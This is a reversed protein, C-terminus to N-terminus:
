LSGDARRCLVIPVIGKGGPGPSLRLGTIRGARDFCPGSACGDVICVIGDKSAARGEQVMMAVDATYHPTNNASLNISLHEHFLIPGGGLTEPAVDKLLTRIVAGSIAGQTSATGHIVLGADYGLASAMAGGAAVGLFSM